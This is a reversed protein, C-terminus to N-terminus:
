KSTRGVQINRLLGALSPYAVRDVRRVEKTLIDRLKHQVKPPFVPDLEDPYFLMSSLVCLAVHQPKIVEM